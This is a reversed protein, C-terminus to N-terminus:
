SAPKEVNLMWDIGFKDTLDGYLGFFEEKLPHLVKGGASLKSFLGEIEKKNGSALTLSITNGRKVGEAGTMDSAMLDITGNKLRAHMVKKHAEKPTQSAMPSEGITMIQLEGGFCDKYFKMAESCNGDFRLYPNLRAM